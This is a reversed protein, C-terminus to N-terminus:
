PRSINKTSYPVAFEQTGVTAGDVKFTATRVGYKMFTENFMNALATGRSTDLSDFLGAPITAVQSANAYGVFTSEFMHIFSTGSTTNIGDFLGPPITCDTCNTGYTVFTHSFMGDFVALGATSISAFLNQPIGIANPAAAFRYSFWWAATAHSFMMQTLVTDISLLMTNVIQTSTPYHVGFARMWGIAATGSPRITIQYQGPAAYTHSVGCNCGSASAGAATQVATGDGWNILWAYNINGNVATPVAYTTSAGTLAGTDTLRTDITFAFCEPNGACAPITNPNVALYTGTEAVQRAFQDSMSLPTPEANTRSLALACVVLGAAVVGVIPLLRRRVSNAQVKAM